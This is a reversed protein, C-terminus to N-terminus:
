GAFGGGTLFAQEDPTTERGLVANRHPFRGFRRIIDAHDEAFRLSEADGLARYLMVCREQDAVAESHMFPLYFFTRLDAAVARDFGRALARDAVARALPDAAYTRASARFMNRSFQDLVIVLALAGEATSEWHALEGAAAAEYIALFRAHIAADLADDKSFWREAGAAQWFSVVDHPEIPGRATEEIL